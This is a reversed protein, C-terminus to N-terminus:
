KKLATKERLGMKEFVKELVYKIKEEESEGGAKGGKEESPKGAGKAEAKAKEQEDKKKEAKDASGKAAAGAGAGAAAAKDGGSTIFWVILIFVLIAVAIPVLRSLWAYSVPGLDPRVGAAYLGYLLAMSLLVFFVIMTWWKREKTLVDPMGGFIGLFILIIIGGFLLLVLYYSFLNINKAVDVAAIAIFSIIVALVANVKSDKFMKVKEFVAFLIIFIIVFPIVVNVVGLDELVVFVAKLGM